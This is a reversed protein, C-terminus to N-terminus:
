EDADGGTPQALLLDDDGDDVLITEGGLDLSDGVSRDVAGVVEYRLTM